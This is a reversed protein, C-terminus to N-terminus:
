PRNAWPGSRDVCFYSPIEGNDASPEVDCRDDEDCDADSACSKPVLAHVRELDLRQLVGQNYQLDFDSNVVFLSKGEPDMSLGVPFYIQDPPPEVGDGPPFCQTLAFGWFAPLFRRFRGFPM